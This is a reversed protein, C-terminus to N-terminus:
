KIKTTWYTYVKLFAEVAERKVIQGAGMGAQIEDPDKGIGLLEKAYKKLTQGHVTEDAAFKLGQAYLHAFLAERAAPDMREFDLSMKVIGDEGRNKLWDFFAGKDAISVNVGESVQVKEGSSLKIESLGAQNLLAPIEEQAVAQFAKKKEAVRAELDAIETELIKYSSVLDVLRALDAAQNKKSDKLLFEPENM